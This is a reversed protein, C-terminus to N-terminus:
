NGGLTFSSAALEYLAVDEQKLLTKMVLNTAINKGYFLSSIGFLLISINM